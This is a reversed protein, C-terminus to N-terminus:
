TVGTRGGGLGTIAAFVMPKPIGVEMVAPIGPDIVAPIGVPEKPIDPIGTFWPMIPIFMFMFRPIVAGTIILPIGPMPTEGIPRVCEIDGAM